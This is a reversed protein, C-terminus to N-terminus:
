TAFKVTIITGADSTGWVPIAQGSQLVANGTFPSAVTLEAILLGPFFPSLLTLTKM